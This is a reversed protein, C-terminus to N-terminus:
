EVKVKLILPVINGIFKDDTNFGMEFTNYKFYNESVIENKFTTKLWEWINGDFSKIKLIKKDLDEIRKNSYLICLIDDGKQDTSYANELNQPLDIYSNSSLILPSDQNNKKYNLPFLVEATKDPKYSIIYVYTNKVLNTAKIRFFDNKKIINKIYYCKDSGLFPTVAEFKNKSSKNDTEIYKLILFNGNLKNNTNISQNVTFSYAEFCDKVFDNYKLFFFGKNGWDKGWSNMVEFQGKNNDYGVICLAHASHKGNTFGENETPSYVGYKNINSFSKRLKLGIVVPKNSALANIVNSIKSDKSTLDKFLPTFDKIKFFQAKKDELYGPLISCDAPNFDIIKCDGKEQVKTIANKIQAGQCLNNAKIQNYIYLPSFINKNIENIENINNDICYAITLAAYGTAWSTCTGLNGQSGPTPCFQKLSYIDKIDNNFKLAPSIMEIKNYEEQDFILGTGYEKQSYLQFTIFLLLYTCEKKFIM